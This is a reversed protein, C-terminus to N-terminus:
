LIKLGYTLMSVSVVWLRHYTNPVSRLFNFDTNGAVCGDYCLSVCLVRINGFVAKHKETGTGLWIFTCQWLQLSCISLCSYDTSKKGLFEDWGFIFGSAKPGLPGQLFVLAQHLQKTCPCWPCGPLRAGEACCGGDWGSLPGIWAQAGRFIKTRLSAM